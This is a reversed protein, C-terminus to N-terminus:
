PEVELAAKAIIGRPEYPDLDIRDHCRGVHDPNDTKEKEKVTQTTRETRISPNEHM